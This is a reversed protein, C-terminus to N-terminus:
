KVYGATTLSHFQRDVSHRAKSAKTHAPAHMELSTHAMLQPGFWLSIMLLVNWFVHIATMKKRTWPVSPDLADGFFTSWYWQFLRPDSEADDADLRIEEEIQDLSKGPNADADRTTSSVVQQREETIDADDLEVADTDAM